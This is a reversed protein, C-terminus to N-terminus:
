YEEEDNSNLMKLRWEEYGRAVNEFCKSTFYAGTVILGIEKTNDNIVQISTADGFSFITALQSFIVVEIWTIIWVVTIIKSFSWMTRLPDEDKKKRERDFWLLMKM